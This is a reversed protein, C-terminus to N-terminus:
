SPVGGIGISSCLGDPDASQDRWTPAAGCTDPCPVLPVDVSHQVGVNALKSQSALVTQLLSTTVTESGVLRPVM